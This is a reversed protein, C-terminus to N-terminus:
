RPLHPAVRESILRVLTPDMYDYEDPIYLCVIRKRQYLDEFRSRIKNRHNREMVFVLDAWELLERTLPVAADGYIGASRVELHPDRAYLAQATPSRYRNAGCVFLIRMM